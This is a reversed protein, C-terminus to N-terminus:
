LPLNSVPPMSLAIALACASHAVDARAADAAAAAAAAAAVISKTIQCANSPRVLAAQRACPNLTGM